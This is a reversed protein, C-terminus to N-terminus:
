NSENYKLQIRLNKNDKRLDEITKNLNSITNDMKAIRKDMNAITRDKNKNQKNLFAIEVQDAEIYEEFRYYQDVKEKETVKQIMM